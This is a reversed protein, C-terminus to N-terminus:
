KNELLMKEKLKQEKKKEEGIGIFIYMLFALNAVCICSFITIIVIPGASLGTTSPPPTPDVGPNKATLIQTQNALNATLQQIEPIKTSTTSVSSPPLKMIQFQLEPKAGIQRERTAMYIDNTLGRRQQLSLGGNFFTYIVFLSRDDDTPVKVFAFLYPSKDVVTQPDQNVTKLYDLYAGSTTNIKLYKKSLTRLFWYNEVGSSVVEFFIQHKFQALNVSELTVVKSLDENAFLYHQSLQEQFVVIDGDRLNLLDHDNM